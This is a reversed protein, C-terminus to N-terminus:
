RALSRPRSRTSTSSSLRCAAGWASQAEYVARWWAFPTAAAGADVATACAHRIVDFMDALDAHFSTTPDKTFWKPPLGEAALGVHARGGVEVELRVFLHPLATMSAIGYRFPMRTRMNLVHLQYGRVRVAGLM